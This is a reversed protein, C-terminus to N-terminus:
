HMHVVVALSSPYLFIKRSNIVSLGSSVCSTTRVTLWRRSNLSSWGSTASKARTVGPGVVGMELGMSDGGVLGVAKTM